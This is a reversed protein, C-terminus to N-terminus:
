LVIPLLSFLTAEKNESRIEFRYYTYEGSITKENNVFVDLVYVVKKGKLGSYFDHLPLQFSSMIALWM